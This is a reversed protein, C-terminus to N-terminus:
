GGLPLDGRQGLALVDMVIAVSMHLAVGLWITRTVLALAGLLLAAVVAGLVEPLPKSFHLMCYPVVPVLVAYVGFRARFAQVLFGRFFFEVAVFQLLYLAEWVVFDFLSRGALKYLPYYITFSTQSSARAVLPLALVLMVVYVRWHVLANKVGLGYDVLRERAPVFRVYLVPVVFFCVFCFTSWWAMRWLDGWVDHDFTTSFLPRADVGIKRLAREMARARNQGGWTHVLAAMAGALAVTGVLKYDLRDGRTLQAQRSEAEIASLAGVLAHSQERLRQRVPIM